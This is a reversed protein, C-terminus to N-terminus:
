CMTHQLWAIAIVVYKLFVSSLPPKEITGVKILTDPETLMGQSSSCWVVHKNPTQAMQKEDHAPSVSMVTM